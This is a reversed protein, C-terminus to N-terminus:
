NFLKHANRLRERVVYLELSHLPNKAIADEVHVLLDTILKGMMQQYLDFRELAKLSRHAVYAWRGALLLSVVTIAILWYM